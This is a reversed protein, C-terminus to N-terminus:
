DLDMVLQEAEDEPEIDRKTKIEDILQNLDGKFVENNQFVMVSRDSELEGSENRYPKIDIIINKHCECNDEIKAGCYPCYKIEGNMKLLKRVIKPDFILRSKKNEMNKNREKKIM